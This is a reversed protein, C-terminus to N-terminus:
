VGGYNPATGTAPLGNHTSGNWICSWRVKKPGFSMTENGESCRASWAAAIVPAACSKRITVGDKAQAMIAANTQERRLYGEYQLREAATLLKPDVGTVGLTKHIAADIQPGRGPICRQCEGDFAM